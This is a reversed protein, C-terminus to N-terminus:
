ASLEVVTLTEYFLKKEKVAKKHMKKEKILRDLATSDALSSVVFLMKGGRALLPLASQIFHMTTEVGAPGGHVTTDRVKDDPLYPPNSVILDFRGAFASAADCCVLMAGSRGRCHELARLDIDSGAVNAFSKELLNLLVGSGVGIELAWKGSYERICDALLFTDDSPVYM